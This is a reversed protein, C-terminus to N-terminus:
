GKISNVELELQFDCISGEIERPQRELYNLHSVLIPTQLNWGRHLKFFQILGRLYFKVRLFEGVHKFLIKRILTSM